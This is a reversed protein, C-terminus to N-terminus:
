PLAAVIFDALQTAAPPDLNSLVAIVYGSKPYIRLDGNMGPAGGAHGVSGAGDKRADEFGYKQLGPLDAHGPRPLHVQKVGEGSEWPGMREVWNEYDRNAVLLTIPSGLTRGHRIGSRVEASDTEIKM